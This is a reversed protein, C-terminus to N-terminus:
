AERLTNENNKHDRYDWMKKKEKSCIKKKENKNSLIKCYTPPINNSKKQISHHRSDDELQKNITYSLFHWHIEIKELNLDNCFISNSIKLIRISGQKLPKWYFVREKKNKPNGHKWRNKLLYALKEKKSHMYSICTYWKSGNSIINICHNHNCQSKREYLINEIELIIESKTIASPHEKLQYEQSKTHACCRM